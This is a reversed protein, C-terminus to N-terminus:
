DGKTEKTQFSDNLLKKCQRRTVELCFTSRIQGLSIVGIVGDLIKFLDSKIIHSRPTLSKKMCRIEICKM